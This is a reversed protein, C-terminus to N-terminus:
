LEIVLLMHKLQLGAVKHCYFELFDSNVDHLQRYFCWVNSM